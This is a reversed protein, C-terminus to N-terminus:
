RGPPAPLALPRPPPLTWSAAKAVDPWTHQELANIEDVAQRVLPALEEMTRTQTASPLSTSQMIQGKLGSVRGGLAPGGGPRDGSRDGPWQVGLRARLDRLPVRVRDLTQVVDPAPTRGVRAELREVEQSLRRVRDAGEALTRQWGFLTVAADHATRRDVDSITILWDPEVRVPQTGAERGDVVLTVTYDGPLVFPAVLPDIEPRNFQQFMHSPVQVAGLAQPVVRPPATPPIPDYRLDWAVRHVGATAPAAPGSIERVVTGRPSAIRLAVSSAPTALRYTLLAGFEPNHGWFRQDGNMWWRDFARNFQRAPRVAFLHRETALARAADQVPTLDDLIWISRGHTAVILDNDRPHFVISFVPVTPLTGRWRTWPRRSRDVVFLGFETGAYVM